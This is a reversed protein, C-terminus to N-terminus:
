HTLPSIMLTLQSISSPHHSPSNGSPPAVFHIHYTPFTYTLRDLTLHRALLSSSLLLKKQLRFSYKPHGVGMLELALQAWALFVVWSTNWIGIMIMKWGGCVGVDVAVTSCHGTPPPSGNSQRPSHEEPLCVLAYRTCSERM